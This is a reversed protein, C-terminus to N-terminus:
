QYPKVVQQSPLLGSDVSHWWWSTILRLFIVTRLTQDQAQLSLLGLFKQSVSSLCGLQWIQQRESLRHSSAEEEKSIGRGESDAQVWGPGLLVKRGAGLQVTCGTSLGGKGEQGRGAAKVGQWRGQPTARGAEPELGGFVQETGPQGGKPGLRGAANM